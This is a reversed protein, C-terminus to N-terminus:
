AGWAFLIFPLLWSFPLEDLFKQSFGDDDKPKNPSRKRPGAARGESLTFEMADVPPPAPKDGTEQLVNGIGAVAFTTEIGAATTGEVLLHNWRPAFTLTVTEVGLAAAADAVHQLWRVDLHVVNRTMGSAAEAQITDIVGDVNPLSGYEVPVTQPEGEKGAIIATKVDMQAVLLSRDAPDDAIRGCGVATAAKGLTKADILVPDVTDAATAPITVRALHRGDCATVVLGRHQDQKFEVAQGHTPTTATMFQRLKSVAPPLRMPKMTM